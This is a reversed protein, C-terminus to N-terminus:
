LSHGRGLRDRPRSSARRLKAWSGVGAAPSRSPSVYQACKPSTSCANRHLRVRIGAFHFARRLTAVDTGGMRNAIPVQSEVRAGRSTTHELTCRDLNCVHELLTRDRGRCPIGAVVPGAVGPVTGAVGPADAGPKPAAPAHQPERLLRARRRRLLPVSVPQRTAGPQEEHPRREVATASVEPRGAPPVPGPVPRAGGLDNIVQSMEDGGHSDESRPTDTADLPGEARHSARRPAPQDCIADAQNPDGVVAHWDTVPLQSAILTPAREARDEIVETLDRREADRLPALMWDDIALLDLRSLRALLRAYSGDGRGVALEQLLSPMRVYCATFGRRCAREVFACALFSKGIGCAGTVILNHREAVWACTGLTLVQQRNLRRPHTSDVAKLTAPHRLKATRLRRDLKRQERATWEADVLLGFREEFGLAAAEDTRLQHQCADAMAGLKM